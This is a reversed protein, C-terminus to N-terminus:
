TMTYRVNPRTNLLSVQVGIPDLLNGGSCRDNGSHLDDRDGAPVAHPEVEAPRVARKERSVDDDQFVARAVRSDALNGAALPDTPRQFIGPPQDHATRDPGIVVNEIGHSAREGVPIGTPASELGEVQARRDM